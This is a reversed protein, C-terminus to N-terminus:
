GQYTIGAQRGDWRGETDPGVGATVPEGVASGANRLAANEAELRRLKEEPTEVPPQPIHVAATQVPVVASASPQPTPFPLRDESESDGTGSVASGGAPAHVARLPANFVIGRAALESTGVGGATYYRPTEHVIVQALALGRQSYNKPKYVRIVLTIDLGRALEQGSMDQDFTGDGSAAPIAIIPLNSGKSDISYNAGADPNKKSTYCREAVFREELTPNSPDAYQVEAKTITVTTHPKGVPSIGNQVKRQDSAVLETGEIPRTLRSYALEGRILVTTGETLDSASVSNTAM